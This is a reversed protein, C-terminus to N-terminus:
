VAVTWTEGGVQVHSVDWTTTGKRHSGDHGGVTWYGPGVRYGGAVREGWVVSDGRGLRAWGRGRYMGEYRHAPLTITATRSLRRSNALTLLDDDSVGAEHAITLSKLRSDGVHIHLRELRETITDMEMEREM